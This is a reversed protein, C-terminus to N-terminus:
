CKGKKMMKGMKVDEKLLKKDKSIDKREEKVHAKMKEKLKGKM